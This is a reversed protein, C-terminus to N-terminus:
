QGSQILNEAYEISPSQAPSASLSGTSPAATSALSTSSSSDVVIGSAGHEKMRQM